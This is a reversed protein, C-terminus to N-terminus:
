EQGRLKYSKRFPYFEYSTPTLLRKLNPHGEFIVGFLEYTEQCSFLTAAASAILMVSVLPNFWDRCKKGHSAFDAIFTIVLVAVLIAEPIM